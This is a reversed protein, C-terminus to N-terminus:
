VKVFFSDMQLVRGDEPSRLQEYNGYYSFGINKLKTYLDDFLLQGEYLIETSMEIIIVDAKSIISLGGNIVKEEFGQVDIKILMPSNLELENLMDDLLKIEVEQPIEEYAFPFSIKHTDALPLISSSPTYENRNFVIKGSSDGLAVNFAKFLPIDRFNDVLEEYCDPLPEFSYILAEPFIKKFIAAAQGTNAGIDLITRIGKNAIWQLKLEKQKIQAQEWKTNEAEKLCAIDEATPIRYISYGFYQFLKSILKKLIM